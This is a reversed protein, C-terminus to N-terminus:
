RVRIRLRDVLRGSALRVDLRVEGDHRAAASSVSWARFGRPRGGKLPIRVERVLRGDLYWEHLLTDTLGPPAFVPTFAWIARGRRAARLTDVPERDVVASCFVPRIGRFPAAPVFPQLLWSAGLGLLVGLAAGRGRKGRDASAGLCAGVGGFAALLAPLSHFGALAPLVFAVAPFLVAGQFALLRAPRYTIRELFIADLLTLGALVALGLAFLAQPSDWVTSRWWWPLLFFLIEQNLNQALIGLGTRAWRGLRHAEWRRVLLLVLWVLWAASVMWGVWRVQEWRRVVFFASWIGAGLSFWPSLRQVWIWARAIGPNDM